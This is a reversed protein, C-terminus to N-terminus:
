SLKETKGQKEHGQCKQLTSPLYETSHREIQTKSTKENVSQTKPFLVVSTFNDNCWMAYWIDNKM